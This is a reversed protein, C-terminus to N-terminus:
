VLKIASAVATIEDRPTRTLDYFMIRTPKGADKDHIFNFNERQYFSLVKPINYADVTVLRCGTRNNTVFLVKTLNLLLSGIGSRQFDKQVGLRAIKVAPISPYRKEEPLEDQHNKFDKLRVVDNCYSIMAAVPLFKEQSEQDYYQLAYTKTYLEKEHALVDLQFFENLDTDCCDFDLPFLNPALPELIFGEYFLRNREPNLM